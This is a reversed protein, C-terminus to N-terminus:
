NSSLSRPTLPSGACKGARSLRLLIREAIRCRRAPFHIRSQTALDKQECASPTDPPSEARDKRHLWFRCLGAASWFRAARKEGEFRAFRRPSIGRCRKPTPRSQVEQSTRGLMQYRDSLRVPRTSDERSHCVKVYQLGARRLRFGM